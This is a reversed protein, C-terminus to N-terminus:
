WDSEPGLTIKILINKIHLVINKISEPIKLKEIKCQKVTKILQVKLPNKEM